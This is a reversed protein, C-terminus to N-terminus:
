NKKQLKNVRLKCIGDKDVCNPCFKWVVRDGYYGTCIKLTKQYKKPEGQLAAVNKQHMPSTFRNRLITCRSDVDWQELYGVLARPFYV